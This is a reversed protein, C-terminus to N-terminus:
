DIIKADFKVLLRKLSIVKQENGLDVWGTVAKSNRTFETKLYGGIRDRYDTFNICFESLVLPVIVPEKGEEDRYLSMLM